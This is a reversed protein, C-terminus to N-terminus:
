EMKRVVVTAAIAGSEPVMTNEECRRSEMQHHEQEVGAKRPGATVIRRPMSAQTTSM